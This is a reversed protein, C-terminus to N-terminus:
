AKQVDDDHIEIVRSSATRLGKTGTATPCKSENTCLDLLSLLGSAVYSRWSGQAHRIARSKTSYLPEVLVLPDNADYTDMSSMISLQM